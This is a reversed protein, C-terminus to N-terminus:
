VEEEVNKKRFANRLDLIFAMSLYAIIPSGVTIFSLYIFFLRVKSISVGLKNAWWSCVGFWQLEILDKIKNM